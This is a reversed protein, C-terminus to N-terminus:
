VKAQNAAIIVPDWLPSFPPTYMFDAERLQQITMKNQLALSILNIRLAAGEQGIITGGLLKGSKKDYVM